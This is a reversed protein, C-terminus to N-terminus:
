GVVRAQHTFVEFGDSRAVGVLTIGAADAVRIALATPALGRGARRHRGKGGEAGTRGLDPEDDGAARGAPDRGLRLLAGTLKDLANHRGVDERLMVLGDQWFGAAHVARTAHNLMQAPGLSAAAAAVQAATVPAGRCSPPRVCRM